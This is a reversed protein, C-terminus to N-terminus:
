FAIRVAGAAMHRGHAGFFSPYFLGRLRLRLWRVPANIFPHGSVKLNRFWDLM